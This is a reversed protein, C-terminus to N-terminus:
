TSDGRTFAEAIGRISERVTRPLYSWAEVVVRLDPAM